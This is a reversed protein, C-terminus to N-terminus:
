LEVYEGNTEILIKEPIDAHVLDPTHNHQADVSTENLIILDDDANQDTPYDRADQPIDFTYEMPNM